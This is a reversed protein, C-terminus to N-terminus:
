AEIWNYYKRPSHDFQLSGKVGDSRRKVVVFPASFGIVEFDRTLEDTTWERQEEPGFYVGPCLQNKVEECYKEVVSKEKSMNYM